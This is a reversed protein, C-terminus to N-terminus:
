AFFDNVAEWVMDSEYGKGIVFRAVKNKKVYINKDTVQSSKKKLLNIITKSYDRNDIEALGRAINRPSVGASELERQIKLKGWKMMRFKGGAFAKAYREENLFGETILYSLIEDVQNVQLGYEFLKNKVEQHSREQYACYRFIKNLAEQTSSEQTNSFAAPRKSKSM